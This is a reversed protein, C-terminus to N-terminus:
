YSFCVVAELWGCRLSLQNPSFSSGRAEGGMHLHSTQASLFYILTVGLIEWCWELNSSLM